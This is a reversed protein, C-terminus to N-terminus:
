QRWLNIAVLKQLECLKDICYKVIIINNKIKKWATIEINYVYEFLRHQAKFVAIYTSINDNNKNKLVKNSV